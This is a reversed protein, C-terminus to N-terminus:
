EDNKMMVNMKKEEECKVLEDDDWRDEEREEGEEGRKQHTFLVPAPSVPSHLRFFSLISPLRVTYYVLHTSYCSLLLLLHPM